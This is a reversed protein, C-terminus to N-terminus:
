YYPLPSRRGAGGHALGRRVAAIARAWLQAVRLVRPWHLVVATTAGERVVVELRAAMAITDVIAWAPRHALVLTKGQNAIVHSSGRSLVIDATSGEETLWLVGSVATVRMGRGDFIRRLTGADLHIARFTSPSLELRPGRELATANVIHPPSAFSTRTQVSLDM